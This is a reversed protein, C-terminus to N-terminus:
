NNEETEVQAFESIHEPIPVEPNFFAPDESVQNIRMRFSYLTVERVETELIELIEADAFLSALRPIRNRYLSYGTLNIVDDKSSLEVLWSSRVQNFGEAIVQLTRSWKLTEDGFSEIRNLQNSIISYEAMMSDVVSKVPRLQEIQSTTRTISHNLESITQARQQYQFNFIIPTLAVMALLVIGYWELKLVKQRDRVYDPLMTIAPFQKAHINTIKWAVAISGAYRDIKVSVQEDVEMQEPDFRLSEITMDPFQNIFFTEGNIEKQNALVIRDLKTINEQDLELLIKSFLTNLVNASKRGENVLPLVTRISNGELFIIRSTKNGVYIVATIEDEPLHHNARILGLLAIEEPLIERIFIKGPYLKETGDLVQLFSPEGEISSIFLAGNDQIEYDYIIGPFTEGYFTYLKEQIINEIEKKKVSRYDQDTVMHFVTEGIPINLACEIKKTNFETFVNSLLNENTEPTEFDEPNAAAIDFLDAESHETDETEELDDEPEDLGFIDVPHEHNGSDPKAEAAPKQKKQPASEHVLQMEQANSLIIKDGKVRLRTIRLVSGVVSLGVADNVKM